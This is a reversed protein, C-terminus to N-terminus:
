KLISLWKKLVMDCDKKTYPKDPIKLAKPPGGFGDDLWKEYKVEYVQGKLARVKDLIVSDAGDIDCNLLINFLEGGDLIISKSLDRIQIKVGVLAKEILICSDVKKSYFSETEILTYDKQFQNEYRLIHKEALLDCRNEISLEKSAEEANAVFNAFIFLLFILLQITLSIRRIITM